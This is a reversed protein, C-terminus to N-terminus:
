FGRANKWLISEQNRRAQVWGMLGAQGGPRTEKEFL